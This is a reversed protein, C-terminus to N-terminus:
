LYWFRLCWGSNVIIYNDMCGVGVRVVCFKDENELDGLVNLCVVNEEELM